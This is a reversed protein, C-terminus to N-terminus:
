LLDPRHVPVEALDDVDPIPQAHELLADVAVRLEVILIPHLQLVVDGADVPAEGGEVEQERIRAIAEDARTGLVLVSDMSRPVICSCGRVMVASKACPRSTWPPLSTTVQSPLPTRRARKLSTPSRASRSAAPSARRPTRGPSRTPVNQQFVCSCRSAYRATGDPATSWVRLTRRK